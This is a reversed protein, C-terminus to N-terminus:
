SDRNVVSTVIDNITSLPPRYQRPLMKRQLANFSYKPRGVNKEAVVLRVGCERMVDAISMDAEPLINVPWDHEEDKDKSDFPDSPAGHNSHNSESSTSSPFGNYGTLATLPSGTGTNGDKSTACVTASEQHQRSTNTAGGPHTERNGPRGGGKWSSRRPQPSHPSHPPHPPHPPDEPRDAVCGHM